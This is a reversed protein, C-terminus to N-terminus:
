GPMDTSPAAAILPPSIHTVSYTDYYISKRNREGDKAETHSYLLHATNRVKKMAPM